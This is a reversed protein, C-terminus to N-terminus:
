LLCWSYQKQRNDMLLLDWLEQPYSPTHHPYTRQNTIKGNLYEVSRCLLAWIKEVPICPLWFQIGSAEKKGRTTMLWSIFLLAAGQLCLVDRKVVTSIIKYCYAESQCGSPNKDRVLRASAVCWWYPQSTILWTQSAFFSGLNEM